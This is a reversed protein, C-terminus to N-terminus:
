SEAESNGGDYEATPHEEEQEDQNDEEEATEQNAFTQAFAELDGFSDVFLQAYSEHQPESGDAAM